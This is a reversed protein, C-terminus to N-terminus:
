FDRSVALQQAFADVVAAVSVRQQNVGFSGAAARLRVEPAEPPRTIFNVVGGVADSGYLASGSGRLIEINSVSELPVPVDLNHHGSQADNLRVGNLLVLTQGFTAGNISLDSQVGNPARQRLDLSPDLRLIDVWTNSLLGLSRVDYIAVPRDAEELPIPEFAGTVVVSDRRAPAQAVLPLWVALLCLCTRV